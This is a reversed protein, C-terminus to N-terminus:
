KQTFLVAHGDPDRALLSKSFGLPAALEVVGSSVLRAHDATVEAARVRTQWHWLDNARTDRPM